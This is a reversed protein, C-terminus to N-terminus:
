ERYADLRDLLDSIIALPDNELERVFDDQTADDRDWPDVLDYLREALEKKYATKHDAEQFDPDDIYEIRIGYQNATIYRVKYYGISGRDRAYDIAETITRTYHTMELNGDKYLEVGFKDFAKM